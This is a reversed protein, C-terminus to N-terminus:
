WTGTGAPCTGWRVRRGGWRTSSGGSFSAAHGRNRPTTGTKEDASIICDDPHLPEGAWYGEYLDLVRGAKSAFDPDRPFLWGRYHWPKLADQDLIRWITSLSMAPAEPQAGVLRALEATSYRSLPQERQAPLECALAKVPAM